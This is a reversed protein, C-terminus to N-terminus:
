HGAISSDWKGEVWVAGDGFHEKKWIPVSKKLRNIAETVAELAPGRHPAAIAIIVSSEGIEIRGLRHAIAVRGVAYRAALDHGLRAMMEIAMAEYCEYELFLTARGRSNDRVVGDFIAVAGDSPQRVRAKLALLDLPERTLGFFHGQPDEIAHTWSPAGGSVPPLFALEDGDNLVVNPHAFELNVATMVNDSIDKAFRARVDSVTAGTELSLEQEAMGVADKVAGFFLVRIRM